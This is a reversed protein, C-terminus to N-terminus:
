RIPKMNCVPVKPVQPRKKKDVTIPPPTPLPGDLIKEGLAHFAAEVHEGTKASTLFYPCDFDRALDEQEGAGFDHSDTQDCKNGIFVLPIEGWEVFMLDMWNDLRELTERRTLDCVLLAGRSGKLYQPLFVQRFTLQGMIDWIILSLYVDSEGPRKIAIKKKYTNTGITLLYRDTFHQKVFRNILSTKGVAGDGLLCIKVKWIEPNDHGTNNDGFKIGKFYANNPTM